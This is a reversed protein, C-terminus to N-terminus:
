KPVPLGTTPLRASNKDLEEQVKGRFAPSSFTALRETRAADDPLSRLLAAVASSMEPLANEQTSAWNAFGTADSNSWTKALNILAGRRASGEPLSAVWKGAKAPDKQAWRQAVQVMARNRMPGEEVEGTALDIAQKPDKEAIVAAIRGLADNREEAQELNRAWALATEPNDEAMRMAFHAVLKRSEEGGRTLEAFAQQAIQRDVDIADWAVQSMAKERAAPDTEKLAADFAARLESKAVTEREVRTGGHRDTKTSKTSKGPGSEEQDPATSTSENKKECASFFLLSSLIVASHHITRSM